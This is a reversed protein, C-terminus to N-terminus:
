LRILIAAFSLFASNAKWWRVLVSYAYSGLKRHIVVSVEFRSNCVPLAGWGVVTDTISEASALRYLQFVFVMSPRLDAPAPTSLFVNQEIWMDVNYYHGHHVVPKTACPRYSKGWRFPEGGLKDYISVRMVYQGRPAKDKVARMVSLYLRLPQPTHQWEVRWRRQKVPVFTDRHINRPSLARPTGGSATPRM